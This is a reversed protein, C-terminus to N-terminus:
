RMLVMRRTQVFAGAELRYFYVGSAAEVGREDKSDWALRHVGREYAGEALRRVLQGTTNYISMKVESSRPLEFRIVTQPNFPNPFNQSLSLRQPLRTAVGKPTSGPIADAISDCVTIGHKTYFADYIDDDHPTGNTLDSDGYINDDVLYLENHFDEFKLKHGTILDMQTLANFALKDAIFRGVDERLDWCAGSIIQGNWHNSSDEEFESYTFSNDLDRTKSAIFLWEALETDGSFNNKSVAFYDPLGEDMAYGEESGQPHNQDGIMGDYIDEIVTHTYEHNIADSDRAYKYRECHGLVESGFYLTDGNDSIEANYTPGANVYVYIKAPDYGFRSNFYYAMNTTHWFVNVEDAKVSDPTAPGTADDPLTFSFDNAKGYEIEGGGWNYVQMYTSESFDYRSYVSDASGSYTYAGNVNTVPTDLLEGNSYVKVAHYRSIQLTKTDDGDEQWVRDFAYGTLSKRRARYHLIQGTVADVFFITGRLHINWCLHYDFGDEREFPVIILRAQSAEVQGSVDLERAALSTAELESVSPVTPVAVDSHFGSSIFVVEGKDNVTIGVQADKFPVGQHYQTYSVYWHGPGPPVGEEASAGSLHIAHRLKLQSGRAKLLTEHRAIFSRTAAEVTEENAAARAGLPIKGGYIMAPTGLRHNWEVLLNGGYAARFAEWAQMPITHESSVMAACAELGGLAYLIVLAVMVAVPLITAKRM